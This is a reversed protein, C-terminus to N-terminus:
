NMLTRACLRQASDRRKLARWWGYASVVGAILIIIMAIGAANDHADIVGRKIYWPDRLAHDAQDGTFHVPYVILAALTLMGMSYLWLWRRGFLVGGVTTALGLTTLVVPFHNILLHAYPWTLTPM